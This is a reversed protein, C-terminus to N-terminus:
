SDKVVNLGNEDSSDLQTRHQDCLKYPTFWVPNSFADSQSPVRIFLHIRYMVAILRHDLYRPRPHKQITILIPLPRSCFSQHTLSYLKSLLIHQKHCKNIITVNTTAKLSSVIDQNVPQNACPLKSFAEAHRFWPWVPALKKVCACKLINHANLM